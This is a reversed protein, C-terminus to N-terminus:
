LRFCPNRSLGATKAQPLSLVASVAVRGSNVAFWDSDDDGEDRLNGGIFRSCPRGEGDTSLEVGDRYHRRAVGTLAAGAYSPASRANVNVFCDPGALSALLSLNDAAFRALPEWLYSGAGDAMLSLAVAPIGWLSAQRAAAATGSFLIDTGINAGRNIGSVVMDPPEPMLGRVALIVCDAPTGDCAWQREGRPEYGLATGMTIGHSVGSRNGSPAVVWLEHGPSLADELAVLGEAAFGDDNTLLIRM